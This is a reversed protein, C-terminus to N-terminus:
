CNNVSTSTFLEKSVVESNVLWFAYFASNVQTTYLLCLWLCYSKTGYSFLSIFLFWWLIVVRNKKKERQWFSKWNTNWIGCSILFVVSAHVIGAQSFKSCALFFCNFIDFLLRYNKIVKKHNAFTRSAIPRTGLKMVSITKYFGLWDQSSYTKQLALLRTEHSFSESQMFYFSSTFFWKWILHKESCAGWKSFM